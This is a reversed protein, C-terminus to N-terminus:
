STRTSVLDFGYANPKEILLDYPIIDLAKLLDLQVTRVIKNRGFQERWDQLYASHAACGAFALYSFDVFLSECAM